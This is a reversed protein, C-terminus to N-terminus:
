ASSPMRSVQHHSSNLRTSKRDTHRDIREVKAGLSEIIELSLDIDKVAPLNELVCVGDSVLISAFIIPLAGNKMGGIEIEGNLPRAGNIVIKKMTFDNRKATM